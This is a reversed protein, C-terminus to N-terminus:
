LEVQKTLQIPIYSAGLKPITIKLMHMSGYLLLAGQRSLSELVFIALTGTRKHDVRPALIIDPVPVVDYLGDEVLRKAGEGCEANPQCCAILTGNWHDKALVLLEAAALLCVMNMDNGNAHMVLRIAWTMQDISTATSAYNLGTQERIAYADLEVRIM